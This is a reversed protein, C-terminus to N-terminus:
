ELLMIMDYAVHRGHYGVVLYSESGRLVDLNKVEYRHYKRAFAFWNRWFRTYAGLDESM